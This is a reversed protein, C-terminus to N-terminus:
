NICLKRWNERLNLQTRFWGDIIYRLAIEISTFEIGTIENPLVYDHCTLNVGDKNIFNEQMGISLYILDDVESIAFEIRTQKEDPLKVTTIYRCDSNVVYGSHLKHRLVSDTITNRLVDNDRLFNMAKSM